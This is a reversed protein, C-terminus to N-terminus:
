IRELTGGVLEYSHRTTIGSVESEIRKVCADSLRLTTKGEGEHTFLVVGRCGELASAHELVHMAADEESCHRRTLDFRISTEHNGRDVTKVAGARLRLMKQIERNGLVRLRIPSEHFELGRALVKDEFLVKM